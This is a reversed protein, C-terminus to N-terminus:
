ARQRRRAFRAAFVLGTGLLLLTAPEPNAILESSSFSGGDPISLAAAPAFFNQDGGGLTTPGVVLEVVAPAAAGQAPTDVWAASLSASEAFTVGVNVNPDFLGTFLAAGNQTGESPVGGGDTLSSSTGADGAGSLGISLYEDLDAAAAASDPADTDGTVITLCGYIAGAGCAGTIGFGLTPITRSVADVMGGTLSVTAGMALNGGAGDLTITDAYSPAANVGLAGCVLLSMAISRTM